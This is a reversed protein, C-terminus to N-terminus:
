SSVWAGFAVSALTWIAVAALTWPSRLLVALVDDFWGEAEKYREKASPPLTKDDSM